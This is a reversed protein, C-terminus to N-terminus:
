RTAEVLRAVYDPRGEAGVRVSVPLHGVHWGLGVPCPYPRVDTAPYRRSHRRAAKRSPWTTKDCRQCPGLASHRGVPGRPTDRRM